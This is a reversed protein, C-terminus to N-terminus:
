LSPCTDSLTASLGEKEVSFKMAGDQIRFVYITEFDDQAWFPVQVRDLGYSHLMQRAFDYAYKHEWAIFITSNAYQPATVAAQLRAIDPFGIQANVPLGLAIATPEITALPRVYSYGTTTLSHERVEVAPDPAFIADPRGFRGVLVKPLALARNLGRCSLQGLGGVAKEGHRIMVITENGHQAVSPSPRSTRCGGLWFVLWAM